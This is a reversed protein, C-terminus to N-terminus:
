GSVIRKTVSFIVAKRYLPETVMFSTKKTSTKISLITKLDFCVQLLLGSFYFIAWSLCDSFYFDLIKQLTFFSFSQLQCIQFFNALCKLVTM